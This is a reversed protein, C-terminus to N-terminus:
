FVCVGKGRMRSTLQLYFLIMPLCADKKGVMTHNEQIWKSCLLRCMPSFTMFKEFLERQIANMEVFDNLMRQWTQDTCAVALAPSMKLCNLALLELQADKLISVLDFLQELAELSFEEAELVNSMLEPQTNANEALRVLTRCLDTVKLKMATQVVFCKQPLRLLRFVASVSQSHGSASFLVEVCKGLLPLLGDPVEDYDKLALWMQQRCGEAVAALDDKQGVNRQDLVELLISCYHNVLWEFDTDYQRFGQSFVWRSLPHQLLCCLSETFSDSVQGLQSGILDSCANADKQLSVCYKNNMLSLMERECVSNGAKNEADPKSNEGESDGGDKGDEVEDNDLYKKEKHIDCSGKTVESSKTIKSSASMRHLVAKTIEICVQTLKRNNSM